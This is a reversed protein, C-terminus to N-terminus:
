VRRCGLRCEHPGEAHRPRVQSILERAQEESLKDLGYTTLAKLLTDIRVHGPHTQTEFVQWLRTSLHSGPPTYPHYTYSAPYKLINAVLHGFSRRVYSVACVKFAGKVQESTYTTNVKRSM